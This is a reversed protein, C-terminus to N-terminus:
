NAVQAAPITGPLMERKVQADLQTYSVFNAVWYVLAAAFPGAAWAAGPRVPPVLSFTQDPEFGGGNGDSHPPMDHLLLATWDGFVYLTGTACAACAVVWWLWGASGRSAGSTTQRWATLGILACVVTTLVAFWGLAAFEVNPPSVIQDVAVGNDLTKVVYAPRLAGWAVGGVIGALLAFALLGAGAGLTSRLTDRRPAVQM